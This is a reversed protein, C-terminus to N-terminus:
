ELLGMQILLGEQRATTIERLESQAKELEAKAKAKADHWATVAAKIEAPSADKNKLVNGMERTVKAVDSPAAPQTASAGLLGLGMGMMMGGGKVDAALKQVKEIKPELVKWDDDTAGLAEKWRDSAAKRAANADYAMATRNGNADTMVARGNADANFTVAGQAGAQGVGLVGVVFVAALAALLAKHNAM